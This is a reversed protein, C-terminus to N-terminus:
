GQARPSAITAYEAAITELDENDEHLRPLSPERGTLLKRATADVSKAFRSSPDLLLAPTRKIISAPVIDDKAIFGVYEVDICLNKQATQRLRLGTRVDETSSGMNIVVRPCISSLAQRATRGSSKDLADLNGILLELSHSSGEMRDTAFAQIVQRERSGSPFSRYLLRFLAGKLFSYANLIATTEPTTVLIGTSSILFFDIINFSSGAGLDVIVYDAVLSNIGAIIKRKTFYRLNATGPLLGDGPILYLRGIETPVILAELSTGKKHIMHGLGPNNNKIGFFTHLNSGGLDLDVIISTKGYSAMCVGLNAVFVSKGVGGKGSAVPVISKM